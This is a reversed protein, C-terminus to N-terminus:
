TDRHRFQRVVPRSLLVGSSQACLAFGRPPRLGDRMAGGERDGFRYTLFYPNKDDLYSFVAEAAYAIPAPQAPLSSGGSSTQLGATEPSWRLWDVVM